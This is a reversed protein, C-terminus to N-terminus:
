QLTIEAIDNRHAAKLGRLPIEGHGNGSPM